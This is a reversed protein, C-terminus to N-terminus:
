LVLTDDRIREEWFGHRDSVRFVAQAAPICKPYMFRYPVAKASRAICYSISVLIYDSHWVTVGFPHPDVVRLQWVFERRDNPGFDVSPDCVERDYAPIGSPLFEDLKLGPEKRPIRVDNAWETAPPEEPPRHPERNEVVYEGCQLRVIQLVENHWSRRRTGPSRHDPDQLVQRRSGHRSGDFPIQEAQVRREVPDGAGADVMFRMEHPDGRAEGM